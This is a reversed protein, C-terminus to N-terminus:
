PVLFSDTECSPGETGNYRITQGSRYINDRDVGALPNNFWGVDGGVFLVNQGAGNEHTPSNFSGEDYPNLRYSTRGDFLPNRDGALVLRAAQGGPLAEPRVPKPRNMFVHSYSNNAPEVFDHFGAYDDAIMPRGDPSSPCIFDRPDAVYRDRMLLFLHRTNSARRVNAVRVPLWFGDQVFGAHPLLGMNAEAYMATASGIRAMNAACLNRAAMNRAKYYGPVFIGIFLTICAAIAILERLSLVPNASLEHAGAEHLAPAPQPFPITATRETVRAIVSDALDAPAEPADYRDLLGLVERLGQSQAALEPSHAVANEVVEAQQPDLRKLHLDLLLFGFSETNDIRM